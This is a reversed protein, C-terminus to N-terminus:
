SKKESYISDHALALQAIRDVLEEFCIGAQRAAMPVLSHSTFGPIANIELIQFGGRADLIFDVRSLDRCGLCQHAKLAAAQVKAVQDPSLGHDFVYRTGVGDAYKATYDYFGREPVVEIVPLTEEGLIGVTLERGAVFAEVMARGYKDILQEIAEDRSSEDRTIYTDVSSGGDVPKVVVPLPIETLWKKRQPSAHFEELIMWDPTELGNRRFFQKASAKDMSLECAKPGSGTYCLGKKECLQQLEGSEGWKGHLAIFILDAPQDLASTNRACIDSRRVTHGCRELADSIAAGTLLSVERESSDGGMVVTITMPNKTYFGKGGDMANVSNM